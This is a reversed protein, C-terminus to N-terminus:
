GEMKRGNQESSTLGKTQRKRLGSFINSWRSRRKVKQNIKISIDSARNNRILTMRSQSLKLPSQHSRKRSGEYHDLPENLIDEPAEKLEIRGEQYFILGRQTKTLDEEKKCCSIENLIM